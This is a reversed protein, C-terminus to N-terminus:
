QCLYQDCDRSAGAKGVIISGSGSEIDKDLQAQSEAKYKMCLDYTTQDPICSKKTSSPEKAGSNDMLNSSYYNNNPSYYQWSYGNWTEWWQGLGFYDIYRVLGYDYIAYTGYNYLTFRYGNIDTGYSVFQGSVSSISFIMMILAIIAIITKAM